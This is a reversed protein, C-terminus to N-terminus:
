MMLYLLSFFFFFFLSLFLYFFVDDLLLQLSLSIFLLFLKNKSNLLKYVLEVLRENLKKFHPPLCGFSIDHIDLGALLRAILCDAAGNLKFYRTLTDGIDWQGRLLVAMLVDSCLGAQAAHNTAGKRASHTGLLLDAYEKLEEKVDARLLFTKLGESYRKNQKPGPFVANGSISTCSLWVALATIPCLKWDYPNAMLAINFARKGGQDMKTKSWRTSLHDDSWVMHNFTVTTINSVRAIMNWQWVFMVWLFPDDENALM